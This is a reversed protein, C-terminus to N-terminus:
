SRRQVGSSCSATCAAIASRGPSRRWTICRRVELARDLEPEFGAFGDGRALNGSDEGREFRAKRAALHAGLRRRLKFRGSGRRAVEVHRGKCVRPAGIVRDWWARLNPTFAEDLGLRQAFHLAYAVCIDAATFRDACLYEREATAAEVSRLRGLFWRRYDEAVQPSRREPAELDRYRFM